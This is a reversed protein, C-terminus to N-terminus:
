GARQSIEKLYDVIDQRLALANFGGLRRSNRELVAADRHILRIVHAPVDQLDTAALEAHDPRVSFHGVNMSDPLAPLGFKRASHAGSVRKRFSFPWPAPRDDTHSPSLEVDIWLHQLHGGYDRSLRRSLRDLHPHLQDAQAEIGQDVKTVGILCQM